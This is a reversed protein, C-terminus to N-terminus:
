NEPEDQIWPIFKKLKYCGSPVFSVTKDKVVMETLVTETEGALYQYYQMSFILADKAMGKFGTRNLDQTIYYKLNNM